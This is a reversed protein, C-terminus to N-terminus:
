RVPIPGKLNPGVTESINDASTASSKSTESSDQKKRFVGWLYLKGQFRWLRIPLKTSTFVLLEAHAVMARIALDSRIMESILNKFVREDSFLRVPCPFNEPFFYLAISDDRPGYQEFGRPWVSSRRHLECYLMEPFLKAEKNVRSCALRSVHAVINCSYNDKHKNIWIGGRWIPNVIPLAPVYDINRPTKSSDLVPLPFLNNASEAEESRKEDEVNLSPENGTQINVHNTSCSAQPQQGGETMQADTKVISCSSDKGDDLGKKRNRAKNTVKKKRSTKKKCKGKPSTLKATKSNQSDNEDSSICTVSKLNQSDSSERSPSPEAIGGQKLDLPKCDDCYWVVFEKFSKPLVELCYRHVANEECRYCYILAVSFGEDGCTQCVIGQTM